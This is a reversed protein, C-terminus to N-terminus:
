HASKGYNIKLKLSLWNKNNPDNETAWTFESNKLKHLMILGLSGGAFLEKKYNEMLDNAGMIALRSLRNEIADIDPSILINSTKLVVENAEIRLSLYSPLGDAVLKKETYDAVNQVMEVFSSFIIKVLGRENNRFKKDLFKETLILLSDALQYNVVGYYELENNKLPLQLSNKLSAIKLSHQM